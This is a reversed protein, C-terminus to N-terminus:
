TKDPPWAEPKDNRREDRKNQPIPPTQLPESDVTRIQCYEAITHQIIYNKHSTKGVEHPSPPPGPTKVVSAAGNAARYVAKGVPLSPLLAIYDLVPSPPNKLQEIIQQILQVNTKATALEDWEHAAEYAVVAKEWCWLARTADLLHPSSPIPRLHELMEEYHRIHRQTERRAEREEEATWKETGSSNLFKMRERADNLESKIAETLKHPMKPLQRLEKPKEPKPFLDALRAANSTSQNFLFFTSVTGIIANQLDSSLQEFYQNALTLCLGLGGAKSLLKEFNSTKFDQFEDVYLMFPNSPDGHRFIAQQIKSLILSGYVTGYSTDPLNVLIIKKNKRDRVIDNFDLLANRTGLIKEFASSLVFRSMRTIAIGIGSESKIVKDSIPGNWFLNLRPHNRVAPHNRLAERRQDDVIVDYIDLFTPKGMLHLAVITNLILSEMRIGLGDDKSLREFLSCIDSVLTDLEEDGECALFDMPVPISLDLFICDDRRHAPIWDLLSVALSKRKNDHINSGKADILCVKKGDLIDQYIMAHMLTSKGYQTKGSIYIHRKRNDPDVFCESM